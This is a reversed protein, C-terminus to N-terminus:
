NPSQWRFRWINGKSELNLFVWNKSFTILIQAQYKILIVLHFMTWSFGKPIKSDPTKEIVLLYSNTTEGAANIPGELKKIIISM